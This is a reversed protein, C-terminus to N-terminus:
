SKESYRKDDQLQKVADLFYQAGRTPINTPAVSLVIIKDESINHKQRLGSADYPQYLQLNIAEDLIVTKMYQGLISNQSCKVLYEPGVFVTNDMKKYCDIKRKIVKSCNDIFYSKPYKKIDPCRGKGTKIKECVPDTCCAGSYSYADIMTYVLRIHNGAVYNFLMSENIYYGQISVIFITDIEYKKLSSIMRKTAIHSFSGQLGTLGALFVHSYVEIPAEIRHHKSDSDINGRGYFFHTDYGKSNLISCLSLAIKGTSGWNCTNIIAVKKM